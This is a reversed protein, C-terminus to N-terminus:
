IITYIALIALSYIIVTTTSDFLNFSSLSFKKKNTREFLRKQTLMLHLLESKENELDESFLRDSEMKKHLLTEVGFKQINISNSYNNNNSAKKLVTEKKIVKVPKLNEDINIKENNQVLLSISKKLIVPKLASQKKEEVKNKQEDYNTLWMQHGEDCCFLSLLEDQVIESSGVAYM